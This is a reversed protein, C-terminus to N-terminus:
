PPSRVEPLPIKGFSWAIAWRTTSGHEFKAIAYNEIQWTNFTSHRCPSQLRRVEHARLEGVVTELVQQHGCLGSWWLVRHPRRLSERVIRLLFGAAGGPTLTEVPAGLLAQIRPRNKAAEVANMEDATSYFPPNCMLAAYEEHLQWVEPPLLPGEAEVKVVQVRAQLRNQKVNELACDVSAQDVETGVFHVNPSL